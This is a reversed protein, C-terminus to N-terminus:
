GFSIRYNSSTRSRGHDELFSSIRLLITATRISEDTGAGSEYSAKVDQIIDDPTEHKDFGLFQFISQVYSKAGNWWSNERDDTMQSLNRLHHNVDDESRLVCKDFKIALKEKPSLLCEEVAQKYKNGTATRVVLDTLLLSCNVELSQSFCNRKGESGNPLYSKRFYSHDSFNSSDGYVGLCNNKSYGDVTMLENIVLSSIRGTNNEATRINREKIAGGLNTSRKMNINGNNSINVNKVEDISLWVFNSAILMKLFNCAYNLPSWLSPAAGNTMYGDYVEVHHTSRVMRGILDTCESSNKTESEICVDVEDYKGMSRYEKDAFKFRNANRVVYNGYGSLELDVYDKYIKLDHFSIKKTSNIMKIEWLTYPSLMLDGEKIKDFVNNKRVPEGVVNKECSYWITQSDSTIIYIKDAYRYYSNGLHTAMIDFGKIVYNIESQLTINNSKFYLDMVSFKIADKDPASKKVDARLVVEQGSLLKSITDKYEDNKWVYFPETSVYRSSFEGTHIYKDTKKVSTKYLDLKSELSEIQKVASDILNEINKKLELHSPLMSEELYNHAFPFVWQKFANVATKYQTLVLNSRILMELRNVAIVLTPNSINISSASSSSIDAIYNALNQQDQYSQIRDYVNILTTMVEELKEICRAMNDKVQFGETLQQMQLKMDRLASQVKWKTVDLSVQSKAELKNAVDRLNNEM